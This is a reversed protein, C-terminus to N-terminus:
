AKSVCYLHWTYGIAARMERTHRMLDVGMQDDRLQEHPKYRALIKAAFVEAVTNRDKMLRKM